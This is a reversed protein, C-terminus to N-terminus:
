RIRRASRSLTDQTTTAGMITRHAAVDLAPHRYSFVLGLLGLQAFLGPALAPAAGKLTETVRGWGVAEPALELSLGYNQRLHFFVGLLGVGLMVAMLGQYARLLPASPRRWVAVNALVLVGLAAFPIWQWPKELHNLLLLEVPTMLCIFTSLGLLLLRLHTVTSPQASPETM